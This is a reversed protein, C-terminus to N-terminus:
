EEFVPCDTLGGNKNVEKRRKICVLEWSTCDHNNPVSLKSRCDRCCHMETIM